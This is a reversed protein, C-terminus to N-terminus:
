HELRHARDGWVPLFDHCATGNGVELVVSAMRDDFDTHLLEHADAGVRGEVVRM